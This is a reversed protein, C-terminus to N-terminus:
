ENDKEESRSNFINVETVVGGGDENSADRTDPRIYLLSGDDYMENFLKIDNIDDTTEAIAKARNYAAMAGIDKSFGYAEELEPYFSIMDALTRPHLGKGRCYSPFLKTIYECTKRLSYNRSGCVQLACIFRELKKDRKLQEYLTSSYQSQTAKKFIALDDDDIKPGYRPVDKM